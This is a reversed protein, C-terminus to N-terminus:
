AKKEREGIIFAVRQFMEALAVKILYGINGSKEVEKSHISIYIGAIYNIFDNSELNNRLDIVASHSPEVVGIWIPRIKSRVFALNKKKNNSKAIKYFDKTSHLTKSKFSSMISESILDLDIGAETVLNILSTLEETNELKLEKKASM